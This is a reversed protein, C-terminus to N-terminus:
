LSKDHKAKAEARKIIANAPLNFKTRWNRIPTAGCGLAVAIEHDSAGDKYLTWAAARSFKALDNKPQHWPQVKDKPQAFMKRIVIEQRKKKGLPKFKDCAEVPCGRTCGRQLAYDCSVMGMTVGSYQCSECKTRDAYGHMRVKREKPIAPIFENEPKM